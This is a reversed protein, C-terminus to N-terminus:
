EVPETPVMRPDFIPRPQRIVEQSPQGDDGMTFTQTWGERGETQIRDFGVTMYGRTECDDNGSIEFAQDGTCLPYDGGWEMTTGEPTYGVAYSYIIETPLDDNVTKACSDPELSWWGSSHWTSGEAYGMAAWLEMGTNNCMQYGTEQQVEAAQAVLEDLLANSVITNDEVGYDAKFRTIARRTRRGLYGDVVGADYGIDSLLRQAGAHRAAEPQYNNPETLNATWNTESGVTVRAFERPEFDQGFCDGQEEITYLGDGTCLRTRGGWTRIGGIHAPHSEAYTYYTTGRLPRSIVTRCEGPRVLWWGESQITGNDREQGVSTFLYFSTQNCYEFEARASSSGASVFGVCLLLFVFGAGSLRKTMRM